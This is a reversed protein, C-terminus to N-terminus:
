RALRRSLNCRIGSAWSSTVSRASNIGDRSARLMRMTRRRSSQWCAVCAARWVPVHVLHVYHAFAQIWEDARRLGIRNRLGTAVSGVGQWNTAAEGTLVWTGAVLLVPPIIYWPNFPLVHGNNLMWLTSLIAVAAVTYELFESSRELETPIEIIDREDV